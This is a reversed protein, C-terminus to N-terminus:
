VKRILRSILLQPRHSVCLMAARLYRWCLAASLYLQRIGNQSGTPSHSGLGASCCPDTGIICCMVVLRQVCDVCLSAWYHHFFARYLCTAATEGYLHDTPPTFVWRCWFSLDINNQSNAKNVWRDSYLTLPENQSLRQTEFSVATMAWMSQM